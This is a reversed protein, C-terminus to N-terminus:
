NGVFEPAFTAPCFCAYQVIEHVDEQSSSGRVLASAASENDVLWVVDRGTLVQAYFRPCWWVM